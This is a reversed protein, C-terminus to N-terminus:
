TNVSALIQQSPIREPAKRDQPLRNFDGRILKLAYLERDIEGRTRVGYKRLLPIPPDFGELGHYLFFGFAAGTLLAWKKSGTLALFATAFGVAAVNMQLYREMSWERRLEEIRESLVHPSQAGYFEINHQIQREVEELTEKTGARRAPDSELIPTTTTSM